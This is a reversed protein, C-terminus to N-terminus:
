FLSSSAIEPPSMCFSNSNEKNNINNKSTNSKSNQSKDSDKNKSRIEITISEIENSKQKRLSNNEKSNRLSIENKGGFTIINSCLDEKKITQPTQYDLVVNDVDQKDDAINNLEVVELIENSDEYEEKNKVIHNNEISVDLTKKM